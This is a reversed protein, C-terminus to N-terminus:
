IVFFFFYKPLPEAVVYERCSYKGRHMGTTKELLEHIQANIKHKLHADRGRRYMVKNLLKVFCPTVCHGAGRYRLM